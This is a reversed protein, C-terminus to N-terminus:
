VNAVGTKYIYYAGVALCVIGTTLGAGILMSKMNVAENDQPTWVPSRGRQGLVSLWQVAELPTVEPKNLSKNVLNHIRVTWEFLDKRTDLHPTLPNEALYKAYHEKCVPCPIIHSFSEYFEKAAKKEAYNPENPYGLAAIHITYWFFPGWVTPPVQLGPTM